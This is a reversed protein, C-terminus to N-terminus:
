SSGLTQGIFGALGSVLAPLLIPLFGGKQQLIHQRKQKITPNKRALFILSKKYKKLKAYKSPPLRIDTRLVAGACDAIYKILCDKSFRIKNCRNTSSGRSLSQLQPLLEQTRRKCDFHCPCAKGHRGM